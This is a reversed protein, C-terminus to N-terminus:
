TSYPQSPGATPYGAGVNAGNSLGIGREVLPDTELIEGYSMVIPVELYPWDNHMEAVARRQLQGQESFGSIGFRLSSDM